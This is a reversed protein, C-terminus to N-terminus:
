WSFGVGAGVTNSDDSHGASAQISVNETLRAAGGIAFANEGEFNGFGLGISYAKGPAPDPINAMAAVSAIGGYAGKLQGYNVADFRNEGDAVGTVRAPGGTTTNTFRAGNDNLTLSTSNTGGSLVTNTQTVTLGHPAGTQQNYVLMSAQSEQMILESGGDARTGNSDAVLSTTNSAGDIRLGNNAVSIGSTGTPNLAYISGNVGLDGQVLAGGVITTGYSFSDAGISAQQTAAAAISNTGTGDVHSVSYGSDNLTSVTNGSLSTLTAAANTLSLRTGGAAGGNTDASLTTVGSVAGANTIGGNSNDIGNTVMANAITVNGANNATLVNGGGSRIAFSGGAGANDSDYSISVDNGNSITTAANGVANIIEEGSDNVIFAEGNASADVNSSITAGSGPASNLEVQAGLAAGPVSALVGILVLHSRFTKM